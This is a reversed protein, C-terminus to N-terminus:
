AMQSLIKRKTLDTLSSKVAETEFKYKLIDEECNWSVGLLKAEAQSRPVKIENMKTNRDELDENSLWGKVKFSGGKLIKDVDSTLKKPEEKTNVSDLIDDMYTNDKITRAPEPNISEGENSTKQLAIQAMAPAYKDGFTLVNIVYTDPPRDTELNRWLFRHM